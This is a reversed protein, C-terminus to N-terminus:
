RSSREPFQSAIYNNVNGIGTANQFPLLSLGARVKGETMETDSFPSLARTSYGASNLIRNGADVMPIGGVFNTSLGSSRYSFIPDDAIFFAVSDVTSPIFASWSSRAFGAKAINAIGLNKEAYEKREKEDMGIMRVNHQATYAAGATMASFTMALYARTDNMSLNHLLQKSHSVIQFTRFQSIVQGWPKTMFLSLNGVDNQQITRRTWRSLAVGFAERADPPWNELNLERLKKAKYLFSKEVTAHEKIANFVLEAYDIVETSGDEKTITKKGLGLSNLRKMSLSANEFALDSLTQAVVRATGRELMLTIPAMGSIDAQVRKLQDTRVQAKNLTKGVDIGMFKNSGTPTGAEMYDLRNIMQNIMRDSGTGFFAEIDRLVPDALQGDEARKLMKRYEPVARLMARFGNVNYANGLEAFQSWGVQGMLRLFNYDQILRTIKMPTSNPDYQPHPRRGIILNYMVQAIEAEKNMGSEGGKYRAFGENEAYARGKNVMENFDTESKIGKKALAIRGSLESAYLTFVQEADRDQLQKLSLTKGGWPITTEMDFRLRGKAASPLGREKQKFLDLLSDIEEETFEKFKGNTTKGFKEELMISKLTERSDATFLRSFGTDLGATDSRIKTYMVKAIAEAADETLDDTGRILGTKLLSIIGEDGVVDRMDQFKQKNWRHTFYTLNKPINEFGKVGAAKAEDLLEGYLQANRQAMRKVAPHHVGSPNEIADAVLEGFKQRNSLRYKRLIGKTESKVWSKYEVNYTQYFKSFTGKMMNTKLIDATTEINATGGMRAGVSDEGLIQGLRNFFPNESQLMRGVMDIRLSGFMSEQMLEDNDLNDVGDRLPKMLPAPSLPNEAAGVSREEGLISQRAGAAIDQAQAEEVARLHNEHAQITPDDAKNRKGFNFAGLGGGLIAGATAAYLVDYEDRTASQSAIYGEIAANSAAGATAGRVIRGIRSLKAGWILPAAVGETAVTAAIAAPDAINLAMRLPVGSWGWSQMKEENKLSHLVYERTAKAHELSVTDELFDHYDEPIGKTLEQYTEMNLKDAWGEDPAFDPRDQFVYSLIQDEEFSAETFELLSAAKEKSQEVAREAAEIQQLSVSPTPRYSLRNKDEEIM